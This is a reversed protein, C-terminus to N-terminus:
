VSDPDSCLSLLNNKASAFRLFPMESELSGM